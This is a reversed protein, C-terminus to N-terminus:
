DEVWLPFINLNWGYVAKKSKKGAKTALRKQVRDIAESQASSITKKNSVTNLPYRGPFTFLSSFGKPMQNPNKLISEQDTLIWRLFETRNKAFLTEKENFTPLSFGLTSKELTGDPRVRVMGIRLLPEMYNRVEDETLRSLKSLEKYDLKPHCLYVILILISAQINGVEEFEKRTLIRLSASQKPTQASKLTTVLLDEKLHLRGAVLIFDIESMERENKLWKSLTSADVGSDRAFSRLSYKSNKSQRRKLEGSLVDLYLQNNERVSPKKAM